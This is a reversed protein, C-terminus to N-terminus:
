GITLLSHAERTEDAISVGHPCAGACPASCATCRDAQVELQAYLRMAEKQAGFGEFYMKHRLVDHIPVDEPCRDLCVGCHPRCNADTTLEEYRELVALDSRELSTGSAYLFEDLQESQWLSIVLCSVSPNDLVWRIGLDNRVAVVELDLCQGRIRDCDRNPSAMRQRPLASREGGIHSRIRERTGRRRRSEFSPPGLSATAVEPM